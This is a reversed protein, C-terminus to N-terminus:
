TSGPEWIEVHSGIDLKCYGFVEAYEPNFNSIRLTFEESDNPVEFVLLSKGSLGPNLKDSVIGETPAPDINFIRERADIVTYYENYLSFQESGRNEAEIGLVLWKADTNYRYIGYQVADATQAFDVRYAMKGYEDVVLFTEGMQAVETGTATVTATEEVTPEDTLTPEDSSTPSPTPNTTHTPEDTPGPNETENTEAITACGALVAAVTAIGTGLVM